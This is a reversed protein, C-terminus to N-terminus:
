YCDWNYMVHSFDKNMLDEKSIFFNAIGEDGWEIKYCSGLQFLLVYENEEDETLPSYQRFMPYGGINNENKNINRELAEYDEELLQSFSEFEYPVLDSCYQKFYDEFHSDYTNICQKGKKAVIKYPSGIPTDEHKVIVKQLLSEDEIINEHYIIHWNKQDYSHDFDAGYVDDDGIFIQLIGKKPFLPIQPLENFNLQVLLEMLNGHDDKPYEMDKPFYAIGGIKNDYLSLEEKKLRYNICERQTHEMLAKKIKRTNVKLEKEAIYTFHINMEKFIKAMHAAQSEKFKFTFDGASAYCDVEKKKIIKCLKKFIIVMVLNEYGKRKIFDPDSGYFHNAIHSYYWEWDISDQISAGQRKLQQEFLCVGKEFMEDVDHISGIINDKIWFITTVGDSFYQKMLSAVLKEIDEPIHDFYDKINLHDKQHHDFLGITYTKDFLIVSDIMDNKCLHIRDDIWTEDEQKPDILTRYITRVQCAEKFYNRKKERKKESKKFFFM